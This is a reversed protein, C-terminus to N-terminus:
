TQIWCWLPERVTEIIDEYMKADGRKDRGVGSPHFLSMFVGDSDWLCGWAM